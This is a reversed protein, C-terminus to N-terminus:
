KELLGDAVWKRIVALEPEALKPNRMPMFGRQTPEMEVRKLIDAGLKLTTAYLELNPKNGGKSPLHCPGCKAQFIPMVDNYTTPKVKAASNKHSCASFVFVGAITFLIFFKKM